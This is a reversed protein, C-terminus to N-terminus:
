LMKGHYTIRQKPRLGLLGRGCGSSFSYILFLGAWVLSPKDDGPLESFRLGQVQILSIGSQWCEGSVFLLRKKLIILVLRPKLMNGYSIKWICGWREIIALFMFLRPGSYSGVSVVSLLDVPFRATPIMLCLSYLVTNGASVNLSPQHWTLTASVKECFWDSTREEGARGM